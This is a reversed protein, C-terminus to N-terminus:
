SEQKSANSVNCIFPLFFDRFEFWTLEDMNKKIFANFIKELDYSFNQSHFFDIFQKKCITDSSNSMKCFTQPLKTALISIMNNYDYFTDDFLHCKLCNDIFQKVDPDVIIPVNMETVDYEIFINDCISTHISNYLLIKDKSANLTLLNFQEGENSDSLDFSENQDNEIFESM